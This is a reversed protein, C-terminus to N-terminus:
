ELIGNLDVDYLIQEAVLRYKIVEGPAFWVGIERAAEPVADTCHILNRVGRGDITAHEYSDITYDGRITGVDSTAPETGGVLKKVVAVAENGQIVMAVVPGATMFSVLQEIIDRGYEIPEKEVPLNNAKRNEVINTGKKLYWAEDKNYHTIVQERTPLVMKLAAIKLGTREIRTVIEGILSRQVGDPKIILLTQQQQFKM